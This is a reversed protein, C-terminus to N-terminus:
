ELKLLKAIQSTSAVKVKPIEIIKAGIKKAHDRKKELMVDGKTAAIINPKVEIVLKEYDRDMMKPGLIIVEDVFTLSELMERRKEQDHFPRGGGKLRKINQDSELAVILYDGLSRAKKLFHVHGYHLIDFCGGVLVKKKAQMGM